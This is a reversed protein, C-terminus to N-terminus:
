GRQTLTRLIEFYLENESTAKPASASLKEYHSADSIINVIQCIKNYNEASMTVNEEDTNFGVTKLLGTLEMGRYSLAFMIQKNNNNIADLIKVQTLLNNQEATSM